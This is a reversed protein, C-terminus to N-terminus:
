MHVCSTMLHRLTHQTLSRTQRHHQGTPLRHQYGKYDRTVTGVTALCSSDLMGTDRTCTLLLARRRRYRTGSSHTHSYSNTLAPTLTLALTLTLKHTHTHTNQLHECHSRSTCSSELRYFACANVVCGSAAIITAIFGNISPNHFFSSGRCHALAHRAWFM